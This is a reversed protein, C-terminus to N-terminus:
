GGEGQRARYKQRILQRLVQEALARIFPHNIDVSAFRSKLEAKVAAAEDPSLASFDPEAQEDDVEGDGEVEVGAVGWSRLVKLHKEEIETGANLLMRGSMDKVDDGLVMGPQLKETSIRPM